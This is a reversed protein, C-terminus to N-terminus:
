VFNYSASGTLINLFFLTRAVQWGGLNGSAASRWVHAALRGQCNAVTKAAAIIKEADVGSEQEAFEPTFQAYLEKLAQEFNEFTVELDPREAKLYRLLKTYCVNYSTIRYTAM